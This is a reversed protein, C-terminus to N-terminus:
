RRLLGILGALFIVLLRASAYFDILLEVPPRRLEKDKPYVSRKAQRKTFHEKIIQWSTM